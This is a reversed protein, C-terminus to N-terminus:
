RRATRAGGIRMPYYHSYNMFGAGVGTPSAQVERLQSISQQTARFDAQQRYSLSQLQYSQDQLQLSMGDLNRPSRSDFRFLNLASPAVNGMPPVYRPQQASSEHVSLAVLTLAVIAIGTRHSM